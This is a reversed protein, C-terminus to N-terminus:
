GVQSLPTQAVFSIEKNSVDVPMDDIAAVTIAGTKSDQTVFESHGKGVFAGTVPKGPYAHAFYLQQFGDKRSFAQYPGRLRQVASPASCEEFLRTMVTCDNRDSNASDEYMRGQTTFRFDLSHGSSEAYQRIFERQVRGNGERFPHMCNIHTFVRAAHDAFEAHDMKSAAPIDIMQDLAAFGAALDLAEDFQAGGPKAMTKVPGIKEGEITVIEDRMKGAWEFVDQTIHRHLASFHARDFSRDILDPNLFIEVIRVGSLKSLAAEFSEPNRRIGLLNRMTRGDDQVFRHLNERSM